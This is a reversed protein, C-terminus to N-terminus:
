SRAEREDQDLEDLIRDMKRQEDAVVDRTVTILAWVLLVFLLVITILDPTPIAAGNM